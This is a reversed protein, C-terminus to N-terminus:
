RRAPGRARVTEGRGLAELRGTLEERLMRLKDLTVVCGKETREMEKIFHTCVSLRALPRERGRGQARLLYDM